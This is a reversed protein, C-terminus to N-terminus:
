VTYNRAYSIHMSGLLGFVNESLIFFFNNGCGLFGLIGDSGSEFLNNKSNVCETKKEINKKKKLNCNSIPFISFKKKM